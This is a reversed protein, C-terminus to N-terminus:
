CRSAKRRSRAKAKIEDIDLPASVGQEAQAVGIAIEKRLEVLRLDRLQEREQFLRLADRIVESASHYLGSRVKQQVMAELEQTLSVNM